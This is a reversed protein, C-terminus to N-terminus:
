HTSRSCPGSRYSCVSVLFYHIHDWLLPCSRKCIIIIFFILMGNEEVLKKLMNQKEYKSVEHFVQEVDSSAGGVIGIAVFLYNNLFKGALHQIDEPFTASFM